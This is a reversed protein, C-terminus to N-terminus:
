CVESVCLCVCVCGDEWMYMDLWGYVCASECVHVCVCVRIGM